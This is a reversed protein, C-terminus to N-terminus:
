FHLFLARRVRVLGVLGYKKMRSALEQGIESDMVRYMHKDSKFVYPLTLLKFEEVLESLPGLNFVAWDIVGARAQDIASNQNGLSMSPFVKFKFKGNTTKTVEAAFAEQGLDTPYGVPHASWGKLPGAAAASATFVAVTIMIMFIFWNRAVQM